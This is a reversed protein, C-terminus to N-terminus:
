TGTGTGDFLTIETKPFTPYNRNQPLYRLLYRTRYPVPGLEEQNHYRVKNM